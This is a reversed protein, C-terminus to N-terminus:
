LITKLFLKFHVHVAIPTLLSFSQNCFTPWKNIRYALLLVLLWKFEQETTFILMLRYVTNGIYCKTLIFTEPYRLSALFRQGITVFSTEQNSMFWALSSVSYFLLIILVEFYGVSSM